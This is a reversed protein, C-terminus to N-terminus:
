TCSSFSSSQSWLLGSSWSTWIESWTIEAQPTVCFLHVLCFRACQLVQLCLNLLKIIDCIINKLLNNMGDRAMQPFQNVGGTSINFYSSKSESEWRIFFM